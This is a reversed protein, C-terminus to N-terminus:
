PPPPIPGIPRKPNQRVSLGARTPGQCRGDGLSAVCPLPHSMASSVRLSICGHAAPPGPSARLPRPVDPVSGAQVRLALYWHLRSASSSSLPRRIATSRAAGRRQRRSLRFRLSPRRSEHSPAAPPRHLADHFADHHARPSLYPVPLSRRRVFATRAADLARFYPSAASVFVAWGPRVM